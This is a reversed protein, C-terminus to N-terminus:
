PQWNELATQYFAQSDMVLVVRQPDIRLITLPGLADGEYFRQGNLEIWRETASSRYMHSDYSFAPIQRQFSASLESLPPIVSKDSENDVTSTDNVAAEFRQLLDPSVKSLDLAERQAETEVTQNIQGSEPQEASNNDQTTVKQPEPEPEAAWNVPEVSVPEGWNFNEALRAEAAPEKTSWWAAGSGLVLGLVLMAPWLLWGWSRRDSDSAMLSSDLVSTQKLLPSQQQKLAKLISSM